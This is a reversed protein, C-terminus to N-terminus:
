IDLEIFMDSLSLNRSQGNKSREIIMDTEIIAAITESNPIHNCNDHAYWENTEQILNDSLKTERIIPKMVIRRM